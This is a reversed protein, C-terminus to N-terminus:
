WGAVWSTGVWMYCMSVNGYVFIVLREALPFLGEAQAAAVGDRVGVVWAFHDQEGQTQFDFAAGVDHDVQGLLAGQVGEVLLGEGDLLTGSEAHFSAEADLVFDETAHFVDLDDGPHAGLSLHLLHNYTQDQRECHQNALIGVHVEASVVLRLARVRGVGGVLGFVLLLTRIRM